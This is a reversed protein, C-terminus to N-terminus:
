DKAAPGGFPRYTAKTFYVGALQDGYPKALEQWKGTSEMWDLSTNIVQLLAQNKKSVAYSVFVLQFPNEEFVNVLQDRHANVVQAIKFSDQIAANSRGALVDLPGATLDGTDLAKIKAHKFHERAYEHGSSGLVTAVTIGEKDIDALSKYKGADEKRVAISHGMYMVPRSFDLALSRKPTAFSGGVFVDIQGSQLASAFTAWKVEVFESELGMQGFMFKPGDVWIGTLNGTKSDIQTMPPYPVIGLRIKKSSLIEQLSRADAPQLCSVLGILAVALLGWGRRGFM